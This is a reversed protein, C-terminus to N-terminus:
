VELSLANKALSKATVNDPITDAIKRAEDSKKQLM